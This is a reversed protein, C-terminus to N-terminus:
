PLVHPGIMKSLFRADGTHWALVTVKPPTVYKEFGTLQVGFNINGGNKAHLEPHPLCRATEVHVAYRTVLLM